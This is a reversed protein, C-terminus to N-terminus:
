KKRNNTTRTQVINYMKEREGLFFCKKEVRMIIERDYEIM